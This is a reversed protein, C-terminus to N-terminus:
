FSKNNLNLINLGKNENVKCIFTKPLAHAKEENMMEICM